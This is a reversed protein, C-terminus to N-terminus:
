LKSQILKRYQRDAPEQFKQDRYRADSAMAVKYFFLSFFAVISLLCLYYM